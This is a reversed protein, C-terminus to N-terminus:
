FSFVEESSIFLYFCIKMEDKRGSLLFAPNLVRCGSLDPGAAVADAPRNGVGNKILIINIFSSIFVPKFIYIISEKDILYEISVSVL